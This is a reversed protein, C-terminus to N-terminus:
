SVVEMQPICNVLVVNRYGQNGVVLSTTRCQQSPEGSAEKPFPEYQFPSQPISMSARLRNLSKRIGQRPEHHEAALSGQLKLAM